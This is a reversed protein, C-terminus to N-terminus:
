LISPPQRNPEIGEPGVLNNQHSYYHQRWSDGYQSEVSIFSLLKNEHALRHCNPCLITINEHSDKGGRSKPIIHHLDCTTKNWGCNSCVAKMRKMIKQITRTSLDFLNKPIKSSTSKAQNRKTIINHKKGYFSGPIRCQNKVCSREHMVLGGGSTYEKHCYKCNVKVQKLQIAMSIKQKTEETLVKNRNRSIASCSKSCFKENKTLKNCIACYISRSM